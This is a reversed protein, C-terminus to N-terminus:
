FWMHLVPFIIEYVYTFVNIYVNKSM